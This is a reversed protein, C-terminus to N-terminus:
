FFYITKTLKIKYSILVKIKQYCIDIIIYIYSKIYAIYKLATRFHFFFFVRLCFVFGM